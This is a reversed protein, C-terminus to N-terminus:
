QEWVKDWESENGKLFTTIFIGNINKAIGAQGNLGGM